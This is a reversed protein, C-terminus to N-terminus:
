RNGVSVTGSMPNWTRAPFGSFNLSECSIDLNKITEVLKPRFRTLNLYTEIKLTLFSLFKLAVKSLSLFIRLRLIKAWWIVQQALKTGPTVVDPDNELLMMTQFFIM